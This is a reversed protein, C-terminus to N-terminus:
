SVGGLVREAIALQEATFKPAPPYYLRIPDGWDYGGYTDRLGREHAEHELQEASLTAAHPVEIRPLVGDCGPDASDTADKPRNRTEVSDPDGNARFALM